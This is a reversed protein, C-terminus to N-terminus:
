AVRTHRRVGASQPAIGVDVVAYELKLVADSFSIKTDSPLTRRALPMIFATSASAGACGLPSPQSSYHCTNTYM